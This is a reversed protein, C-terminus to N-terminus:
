HWPYFQTFSFWKLAGYLTEFLLNFSGPNKRINAFPFEIFLRTNLFLFLGYGSTLPCQFFYTLHPM